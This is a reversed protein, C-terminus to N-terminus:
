NHSWQCKLIRSITATSLMNDDSLSTDAIEQQLFDVEGSTLLSFTKNKFLDAYMEM